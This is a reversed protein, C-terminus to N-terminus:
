TPGDFAIKVRLMTKIGSISTMYLINASSCRPLCNKLQWHNANLRNQPLSIDLTTTQPPVRVTLENVIM